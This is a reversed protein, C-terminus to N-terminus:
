GGWERHFLLREQLNTAMKGNLWCRITFLEMTKLATPTQVCIWVVYNRKLQRRGCVFNGHPRSLDSCKTQNTKKKKTPRQQPWPMKKRKKWGWSMVVINWRNGNHWISIVNNRSWPVFGHFHPFHCSPVSEVWLELPRGVEQKSRDSGHKIRPMLYQTFVKVPWLSHTRITRGLWSPVSTALQELSWVTRTHTTAELSHLASSRSCSCTTSHMEQAGSLAWGVMRSAVPESTVDSQSRIRSRPTKTTTWKWSQAHFGTMSTRIFHYVIHNHILVIEESQGLSLKTSSPFYFLFNEHEHILACLAEKEVRTDVDPTRRRWICVRLWTFLDSFSSHTPLLECISYWCSKLDAWVDDEVGQSGMHIWNYGQWILAIIAGQLLQGLMVLLCHSHTNKLADITARLPISQSKIPQHKQYTVIAVAIELKLKLDKYQKM